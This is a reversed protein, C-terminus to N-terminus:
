NLSSRDAQEIERELKEIELKNRRRTLHANVITFGVIILGGLGAVFGILSNAHTIWNVAGVGAAVTFGTAGNTIVNRM